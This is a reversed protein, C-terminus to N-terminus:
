RRRSIVQGIAGIINSIFVLASIFLALGLGWKVIGIILDIMFPLVYVVMIFIFAILVLPM